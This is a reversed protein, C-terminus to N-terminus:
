KSLSRVKELHEQLLSRVEDDSRLNEQTEELVQRRADEFSLSAKGSSELSYRLAMLSIKLAQVEGHQLKILELALGLSKALQKENDDM